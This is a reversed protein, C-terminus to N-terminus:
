GISAGALTRLVRPPLLAILQGPGPLDTPKLPAQVIACGAKKIELESNAEPDGILASALYGLTPEHGVLAIRTEQRGELMRTIARLDLEGLEPTTEMPLDFIDSLISATQYARLKPSTLIAQPREIVRALGHAAQATRERGRMTLTRDDDLLGEQRDQAIGHRFLYLEM